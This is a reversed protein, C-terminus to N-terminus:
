NLPRAGAPLVGGSFLAATADQLATLAVRQTYPGTSVRAVGLEHLESVPLALGPPAIVSVKREGLAAVLAEVEERVVVGPVFFCAAGAALYAKGREIAEAMTAARDADEPARLFADTRANLVVDVGEARGAALVAEVAAVSAGLEAMQDELNAGAVGIAIARRMTEEPDGYGAEVDMTVPLTVAAVIREVAALHLALPIREGDPYGHSAAISHSATAIARCGETAAVVQASVVDWVNALVLLEPAEHLARLTTAQDATSPM